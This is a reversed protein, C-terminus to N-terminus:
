WYKGGLYSLITAAYALQFWAMGDAFGFMLMQLPPLVFPTLGGAGYVVHVSPSKKLDTVSFKSLENKFANMFENFEQKNTPPIRLYRTPQFSSGNLSTPKLVSNIDKKTLKSYSRDNISAYTIAKLLQNQDLNLSVFKNLNAVRSSSSRILHLALM